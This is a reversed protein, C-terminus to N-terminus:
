YSFKQADNNKLATLDGDYAMLTDGIALDFEQFTIKVQEWATNPCIAITDNRPQGTLDEYLPFDIGDDMFKNQADCDTIDVSIAQSDKPMVFVEAFLTTNTSSPNATAATTSIDKLHNNAFSPHLVFVSLTLTWLFISNLCTRACDAGTSVMSLYLKSNM